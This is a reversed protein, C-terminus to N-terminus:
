RTGARPRLLATSARLALGGVVLWYLATLDRREGLSLLGLVFAAIASFLLFVSLFDAVRVM